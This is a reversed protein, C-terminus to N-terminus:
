SGTEASPVLPLEASIAAWERGSCESSIFSSSGTECLDTQGDSMM